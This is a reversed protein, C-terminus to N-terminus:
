AAVIGKYAATGAGMCYFLQQVFGTFQHFVIKFFFLCFFQRGQGHLGKEVLYAGGRFWSQYVAVIGAGVFIHVDEGKSTWAGNRLGSSELFEGEAAISFSCSVAM